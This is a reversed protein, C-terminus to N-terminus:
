VAEGAGASLDGRAHRAYFSGAHSPNGEDEGDREGRTARVGRRGDTDAERERKAHDIVHGVRRGKGARGRQQLGTRRRRLEGRAAGDALLVAGLGDVQREAIQPAFLTRRRASIASTGPTRASPPQKETLTCVGPSGSGGASTRMRVSVRWNAACIDSRTCRVASVM